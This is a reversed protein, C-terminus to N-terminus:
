LNDTYKEELARSNNRESIALGSVESLILPVREITVESFQLGFWRTPTATIRKIHEKTQLVFREFSPLQQANVLKEEVIVFRFNGVERNPTISYRQYQRHIRGSEMLDTVITRLYRSVDQRMRFGLFLTVSVIYDTEFMDIEYESTYPEDTVRINVFWYVEARKPKKDLISYLISRDIWEGDIKSTLYVVNTQYLDYSEDKRLINLQHKYCNINLSKIYKFTLQTAKHWIAM